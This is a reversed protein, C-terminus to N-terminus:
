SSLDCVIDDIHCMCVCEDVCRVTTRLPWSTEWLSCNLSQARSQRKDQARTDPCYGRGGLRFASAIAVIAAWDSPQLIEALAERQPVVSASM